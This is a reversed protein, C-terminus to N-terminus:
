TIGTLVIILFGVKIDGTDEIDSDDIGQRIAMLNLLESDKREKLFKDFRNLASSDPPMDTLVDRGEGDQTSNIAEDTQNLVSDSGNQSSLLPNDATSFYQLLWVWSFFIIRLVLAILIDLGEFM